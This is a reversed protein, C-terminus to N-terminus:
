MQLPKGRCEEAFGSALQVFQRSVTLDRGRPTHVDPTKIVAEFFRQRSEMSAKTGPFDAATLSAYLWQQVMARGKWSGLLPLLAAAARNVLQDPVGGAIAFVLSRVLREGCRCMLDQWQADWEDVSVSGAAGTGTGTSGVVAPSRRAMTLSYALGLAAQLAELQKLELAAAAVEVAPGLAGSRLADAPALALWASVLALLETVLAMHEEAGGSGLCAAAVAHTINTALTGSLTYATAIHPPPM